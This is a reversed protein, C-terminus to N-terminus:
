PYGGTRQTSPRRAIKVRIDLEALEYHLSESLGQVAFKTGDYPTGLPLDM